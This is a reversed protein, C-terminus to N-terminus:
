VILFSGYLILLITHRQVYENVVQKFGAHHNIVNLKESTMEVEVSSPKPLLIEATHIETQRIHKFRHVNM